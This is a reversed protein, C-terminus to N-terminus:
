LTDSVEIPIVNNLVCSFDAAVFTSIFLETLTVMM